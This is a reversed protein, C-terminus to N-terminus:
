ICLGKEKSQIPIFPEDDPFSLLFASLGPTYPSSAVDGGWLTRSVM